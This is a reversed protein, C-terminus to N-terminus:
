PLEIKVDIPNWNGTYTGTLNTQATNPHFWLTTSGIAQKPSLGFSSGADPGIEKLRLEAGNVLRASIKYRGVPINVVNFNLNGTKKRIIITKKEAAHFLWEEPELKIEFESGELLSGAPAWIDGAVKTNYSIFLSGGFYNSSLWPRESVADLRGRGYPILVFNKVVGAESAFSNLASDAPFVGMAARGPGYDITTAASFFEATGFPILIEYYGKDNTVATASSYVGGVVSSRIGIYAGTIPRGYSDKVFGIARGPKVQLSKFSPLPKRQSGMVNVHDATESLAFSATSTPLASFELEQTIVDDPGPDPAENEKETTCAHLSLMSVFLLPILHKM